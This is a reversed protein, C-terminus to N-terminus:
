APRRRPEPPLGEGSVASRPSDAIRRHESIRDIRDGGRATPSHM